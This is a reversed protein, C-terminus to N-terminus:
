GTSLLHQYALIMWGLCRIHEAACPWVPLVSCLQSALLGICFFILCFRDIILKTIIWYFFLYAFLLAVAIIKSFHPTTSFFLSCLTLALLTVIPKNLSNSNIQVFLSNKTLLCGIGSALVLLFIIGVAWSQVAGMAFPAFLLLTASLLLSPLM